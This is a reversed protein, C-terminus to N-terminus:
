SLLTNKKIKSHNCADCIQDEDLNLYKAGIRDKTHKHEPISSPRQNSMVCSKCFIVKEPLNYFTQM